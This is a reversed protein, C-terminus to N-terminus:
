CKHTFTQGVIPVPYRLNYIGLSRDSHIVSFLVNLTKLLLFAETIM